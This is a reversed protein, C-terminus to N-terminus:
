QEELCGSEVAELDEVFKEIKTDLEDGDRLAIHPRGQLTTVECDVGYVNRVNDATLVEESTGDAYIGGKYMLLIRDAFMSTVNLDHCIVIIALNKVRAIDRLMKMVLMQYRVDLNATPEDLLLFKPEQTLGRAIMVRQHQGASLENFM